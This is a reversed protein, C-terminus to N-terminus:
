EVGRPGSPETIEKRIAEVLGEEMREAVARAVMRVLYGASPGNSRIEAIQAEDLWFRVPRSDVTFEVQRPLLTLSM